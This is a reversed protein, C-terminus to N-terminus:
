RNISTSRHRGFECFVCFLWYEWKSTVMRAGTTPIVTKQEIVAMGVSQQALFAPSKHDIDDDIGKPTDEVHQPQSDAPLPTAGLASLKYDSPRETMESDFPPIHNRLISHAVFSRKPECVLIMRMGAEGSRESRISPATGHM